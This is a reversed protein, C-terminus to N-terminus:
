GRVSVTGGKREGEKERVCEEESKRGGVCVCGIEGEKERERERAREREGGLDHLPMSSDFCLTLLMAFHM